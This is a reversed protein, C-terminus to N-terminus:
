AVGVHHPGAVSRVQHLDATGVVGVPPGVLHSERDGVVGRKALLPVVRGQLEREPVGDQEGVFRISKAVRSEARPRRKKWM